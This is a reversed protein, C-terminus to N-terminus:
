RTGEEPETEAELTDQAQARVARANTNISNRYIVLRWYLFETTLNILMTGILVIYENWGINTLATGWLTSLPSFVAYYAAVLLMARPINAASKFTFERNLTFNWLVSLVLAILYCPWYPWQAIENLLTFSLFQILGASASFLVYKVIRVIEEKNHKQM